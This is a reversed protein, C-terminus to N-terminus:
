RQYISEARPTRTFVGSTRRIEPVHAAHITDDGEDGRDMHEEQYDSECTYESPVTEPSWCSRINKSSNSNCASSHTNSVTLSPMQQHSRFAPRTYTGASSITQRSECREDVMAQSQRSDSRFDSITESESQRSLCRDDEIGGYANTPQSAATHEMRERGTFSPALSKRIRTSTSNRLESHETAPMDPLRKMSSVSGSRTAFSRERHLVAEQQVSEGFERQAQPSIIREQIVEQKESEPARIYLDVRQPMPPERYALAALSLALYDTKAVDSEILRFAEGGDFSVRGDREVIAYEGGLDKPVHQRGDLSKGRAGKFSSSLSSFSLASSSKQSKMSPRKKSLKFKKSDKQNEAQDVRLSGTHDDFASQLPIVNSTFPPPSPEKEKRSATALIVPTLCRERFIRVATDLSVLVLVLDTGSSAVKLPNSQNKRLLPLDLLLLLDLLHFELTKKTQRM